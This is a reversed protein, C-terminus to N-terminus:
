RVIRVAAPKVAYLGEAYIYDLYNPMDKRSALTNKLIWRTQEEFNVLLAQDLTVLFNFINWTDDLNPKDTNIFEAVLRRAEEDNKKVFKEARILARLFKRIAKPNKKVYEQGAAVCFTETYLTEGYFVLGRTGLRKELQKLTPNFTSVADVKGSDLADTMEAPKMDVLTVQKREIGSALLFSDVFFDATTGFPVGINKGKLDAPNTIGRDRRAVIAENKNSTQIVALTTIKEGNMVAFVIPTDGVTAVDAKGAIVANLAPKGFAHSQPIADLGEDAFYGKAFAIYVLIANSATSYAITIKEPPGASKEEKNCSLSCLLLGSILCILFISKSFFSLLNKDNYFM